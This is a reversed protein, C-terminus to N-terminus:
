NTCSEAPFYSRCRVYNLLLIMQPLSMAEHCAPLVTHHQDKGQMAKCCRVFRAVVPDLPKSAPAGSVISVSVSLRM